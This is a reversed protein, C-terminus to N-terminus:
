GTSFTPFLPIPTDKYFLIHIITIITFLLLGVSTRQALKSLTTPVTVSLYTYKKFYCFKQSYVKTFDGTKSRLNCMILTLKARKDMLKTTERNSLKEPKHKEDKRKRLKELM